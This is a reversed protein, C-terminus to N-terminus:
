AKEEQREFRGVAAMAANKCMPWVIANGVGLVALRHAGARGTKGPVFFALGM